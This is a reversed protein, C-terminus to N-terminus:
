RSFPYTRVSRAHERAFGSTDPTLVGSAHTGIFDHSFSNKIKAGARGHNRNGDQFLRAIFHQRQGAHAHGHHFDAVARLSKVLYNGAGFITQALQQANRLVIGHEKQLAARTELKRHHRHIKQREIRRGVVNNGATPTLLCGLFRL